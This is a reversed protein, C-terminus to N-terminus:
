QPFTNFSYLRKGIDQPLHPQKKLWYKLYAMDKEVQVDNEGLKMRLSIEDEKTLHKFYKCRMMEVM